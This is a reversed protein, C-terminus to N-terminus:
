KLSGASDADLYLACAGHARLATAPCAPSVPGELMSRVAAAKAPGPVVCFLAGGSVLTPVTLTLATRPVEELSAFCADHVQQMRCELDLEVEKVALPDSFDAHAPDNFAIHGNEGVGLCVIDVPAEALLAAYRDAEARASAGSPVPVPALYEVRGFPVRSFIANRLFEGFRRPDGAPLSAYEDMHFVHVRNWDIGPAAALGSLVENQSPAAAFVIRCLSKGALVSRIAQTCDAAAAAGMAKRDRFVCVHLSDVSFSRLPSQLIDPVSM